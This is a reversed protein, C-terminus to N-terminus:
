YWAHPDISAAGRELEDEDHVELLVDMQLEGALGALDSLIADDLAAAILLVADAGFVRAEYVQYPDVIFEKRLM